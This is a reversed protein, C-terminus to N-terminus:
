SGQVGIIMYLKSRKVNGYIWYQFRRAEEVTEFAAVPKCFRGAVWVEYM